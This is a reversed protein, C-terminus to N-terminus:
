FVTVRYVRILKKSDSFNVTFTVEYEGATVATVWAYCGLSDTTLIANPGGLTLGTAPSVAVTGSTITAGGAIDDGFFEFGLTDIEGIRLSREADPNSM